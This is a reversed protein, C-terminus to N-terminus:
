PLRLLFRGGGADANALAVQGERGDNRHVQAIAAAFLLGLGTRDSAAQPRLSQAPAQALVHAPFGPGDDRVEIELWGDRCQAALTIEERAYRLANEIANGVAGAILERDLYWELAPDCSVQLRVGKAVAPQFYLQAERLVDAVPYEAIELPYLAQGLKYLNLLLVLDGHSKRLYGLAQSFQQAEIENDIRIATTDAIGVFAAIANKLNHAGSALLVSLDLEEQPHRM